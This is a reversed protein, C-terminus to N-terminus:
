SPSLSRQQCGAATTVVRSPWTVEGGTVDGDVHLLLMPKVSSPVGAGLFCTRSPRRRREGEAASTATTLEATSRVAHVLLALGSEVPLTSRGVELAAVGVSDGVGSTGVVASGTM